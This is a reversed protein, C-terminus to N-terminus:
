VPHFPWELFPFTFRLIYPWSPLYQVLVTSHDILHEHRHALRSDCQDCPLGTGCKLKRERHYRAPGFPVRFHPSPATLKRTLQDLPMYVLICSTNPANPPCFLQTPWGHLLRDNSSRLQQSPMRSDTHNNVSVLSEVFLVENAGLGGPFPQCIGNCKDQLTDLTSPKLFCLFYLNM